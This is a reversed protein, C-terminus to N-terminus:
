YRHDHKRALETGSSSRDSTVNIKEFFEGAGGDSNSSEVDPGCIVDNRDELYLENVTVYNSAEYIVVSAGKFRNRSSMVLKQAVSLGNMQYKTAKAAKRMKVM